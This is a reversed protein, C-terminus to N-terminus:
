RLADPHRDQCQPDMTHGTGLTVLVYPEAIDRLAKPGSLSPVRPRASAIGQGSTTLCQTFTNPYGCSWAAFSCLDPENPPWLENHSVEALSCYLGGQLHRHTYIIHICICPPSPLPNRAGLVHLYGRHLEPVVM